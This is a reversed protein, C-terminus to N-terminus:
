AFGALLQKAEIKSPGIESRKVGLIATKPDIGLHVKAKAANQLYEFREKFERDWRAKHIRLAVALDEPSDYQDNAFAVAKNAFERAEVVLILKGDKELLAESPTMTLSRPLMKKEVEKLLESIKPEWPNSAIHHKVAEIVLDCSCNKLMEHWIKVAENSQKTNPYAAAIM